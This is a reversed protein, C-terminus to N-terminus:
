IGGSEPAYLVPKKGSIDLYIVGSLTPPPPGYGYAVAGPRVQDLMLDAFTWAGEPIFLGTVVDQQQGADWDAVLVYRVEPITADSAVISDFSFAGTADDIVAYVRETVVLRTTNATPREPRLFLRPFRGAFPKLGADYMFGSISAM